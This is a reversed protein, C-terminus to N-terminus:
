GEYENVESEFITFLVAEDIEELSLIDKINEGKNNIIALCKALGVRAAKWKPKISEFDGGDIHSIVFRNFDYLKISVANAAIIKMMKNVEIDELRSVDAGSKLVAGATMILDRKEIDTM